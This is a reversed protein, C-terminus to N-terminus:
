KVNRQVNEIAVREATVKKIEELVDIDQNYELVGPVQMKYTKKNYLGPLSM